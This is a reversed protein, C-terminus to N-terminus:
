KKGVNGEIVTGEEGIYVPIPSLVGRFSSLPEGVSIGGSLNLERITDEHSGSRKKVVSLAKRIHGQVEFFRFLLINDALYSLEVPSVSGMGLIGAQALVLITVIGRQNLFALMEHFQTNLSEENPMAQVLGNLSDIVILRAGLRVVSNRVEEVFEAPSIEAPDIKRLMIKGADALPRPDIGIAKGRKVISSLMEEFLFVAAIEGRRAAAVAYALAVSSKGSGAPGIFLSGTGRDLGGGWLADLSSVGSLAPEGPIIDRREVTVLRPCIVVGGKKITYDHYGEIYTAGRMKFIQMRRRTKGYERPVTKLTIIGHAISELQFDHTEVTRDDLLLVTCNRNAFYQKLALIQRRYRLADGALLRIESLADIVARAPHVREVEKLIGQTVDHFEVDSPHFVSYQEEPSLNQEPPTYQYITVGELSWGHSHAVQQIERESESLSIYLVPEGRRAGELLFQLSLTTKGTGPEGEVLYFQGELLGGYLVENLGAVGTSVITGARPKQESLVSM